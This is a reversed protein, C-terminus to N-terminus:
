EQIPLYGNLQLWERSFSEAKYRPTMWPQSGEILFLPTCRSMDVCAPTMTHSVTVAVVAAPLMIAEETITPLEAQDRPWLLQWESLREALFSPIAGAHVTHPVELLRIGLSALTSAKFKDRQQQREFEDYSKHFCNPFVVHQYGQFECALQLEENWADIELCRRTLPNRLWPPRIKVFPKGTLFELAVRMVNERSRPNLTVLEHTRRLPFSMLGPPLVNITKANKTNERSSCVDCSNRPTKAVLREAARM